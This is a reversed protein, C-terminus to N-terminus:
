IVTISGPPRAAVRFNSCSWEGRAMRRRSVSGFITTFPTYGVNPPLTYFICRPSLGHMRAHPHSLSPPLFFISKSEQEASTDAGFTITLSPRAPPLTAEDLGRGDKDPGKPGPSLLHSRQICPTRCQVGKDGHPPTGM